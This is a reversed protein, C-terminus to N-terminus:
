QNTKPDHDHPPKAGGVSRGCGACVPWKDRGVFLLPFLIDSTCCPLWVALFLFAGLTAAM